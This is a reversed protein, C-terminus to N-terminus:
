GHLFEEIVIHKRYKCYKGINCQKACQTSDCNCINSETTEESNELKQENNDHLHCKGCKCKKPRKSTQEIKDIKETYHNKHYTITTATGKINQLKIMATDYDNNMIINMIRRKWILKSEGENLGVMIFDKPIYKKAELSLSSRYGFYYKQKINEFREKNM